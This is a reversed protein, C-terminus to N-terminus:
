EGPHYSRRAASQVDEWYFLEPKLRRQALLHAQDFYHPSEPDGSEGFHVLTSGRVREGFEFVGLYTTGVVAYRNEVTRGFPGRISPTYYQTFVVGLPGPAAVCPLSPLTDDFPVDLLDAVNAHRQLRHIDGWAVRWDGHGATLTAAAKLLARARAAPDDRYQEKLTEGPYEAGYLEHYWAVCLTAQTSEAACRGDWDRLHRMLPAVQALLAPDTRVLSQVEDALRPLEEQAWYLTTDFAAAELDEFRAAHMESLLRRSIKARRRDLDADELIYAPLGDRSPRDQDL